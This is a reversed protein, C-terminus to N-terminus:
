PTVTLTKTVSTGTYNNKSYLTVTIKIEHGSPNYGFQGPSVGAINSAEGTTLDAQASEFSCGSTGRFETNQHTFVDSTSKDKITMIVSEWTVGGTNSVRVVVAWQGGCNELSVYSLNFDASPTATAQTPTPQPTYVPLISTNGTVTSFESWLWCYGSAYPNEVQFYGSITSAAVAKVNEGKNITVVRDFTTSPGSRCNTNENVLLWVGEPTFTFTPQLTETITPTFEPTNTPVEVVPPETTLVVGGAGLALATQTAAVQTLAVNLAVATQMASDNSPTNGVPFNCGALSVVLFLVTVIFLGKKM